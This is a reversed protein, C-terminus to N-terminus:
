TPLEGQSTSAPIQIQQNWLGVFGLYDCMSIMLLNRAIAREPLDQGALECIRKVKGGRLMRGQAGKM